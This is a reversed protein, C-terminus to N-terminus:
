SLSRSSDAQAQYNRSSFASGEPRTYRRGEPHRRATSPNKLANSVCSVLHLECARDNIKGIRSFWPKAPCSPLAGSVVGNGLFEAWEVRLFNGAFSFNGGALGPCPLVEPASLAPVRFGKALDLAIPGPRVIRVGTM